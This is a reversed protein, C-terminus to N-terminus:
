WRGLSWNAMINLAFQLVQAEKAKPENLESLHSGKLQRKM